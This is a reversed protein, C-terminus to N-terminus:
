PFAADFFDEFTPSDRLIVTLLLSLSSPVHFNTEPELM